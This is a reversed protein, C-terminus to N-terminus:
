KIRSGIPVKCVALKNSPTLFMDTIETEAPVAVVALNLERAIDKLSNMKLLVICSKKSRDLKKTFVTMFCGSQNDQYSFIHLDERFQFGGLDIQM